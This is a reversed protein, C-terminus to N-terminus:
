ATSLKWRWNIGVILRKKKRERTMNDATHYVEDNTSWRICLCGVLEENNGLPM